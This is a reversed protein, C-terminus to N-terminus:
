YGDKRIEYGPNNIFWERVDALAKEYDNTDLDGSALVKYPFDKIVPALAEMIRYGCSIANPYDPHSSVCNKEDSQLQKVLYDFIEKQRTYILGPMFHYIFDNNVKLQKTKILVYNVETTDGLRAMATHLVWRDDRTLLTDHVLKAKYLPLMEQMNALGTLKLVLQYNNHQKNVLDRLIAKADASFDDTSFSTLYRLAYSAVNQSKNKGLYALYEVGTHRVRKNDQQYACHFTLRAAALKVNDVSDHYYGKLVDLAKKADRRGALVSHDFSLAQGDRIGEMEDHISQEIDQAYSFGCCLLLMVTLLTIKEKIM